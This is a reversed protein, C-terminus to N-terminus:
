PRHSQALLRRRVQWFPHIMLDDNGPEVRTM